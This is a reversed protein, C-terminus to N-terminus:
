HHHHSHGHHRHEEALHSHGVGVAQGARDEFGPFPARYSCTDCNMRVEGARCEAVRDLVLQVLEPGAGFHGADLVEIGTEATFRAFDDKMRDLLVGTAMYWAFAAVREAGLRRLQDLSDPVSPWTVGSFGPVVLQAGSMEALLRAAKTAEANADPDSTGRALVALPVGLAGVDALRKHALELLAADVGFPRAYRITAAPFRVRAELVVAPVDSKSHGAAHLMLPVVDIEAAGDELMETIVSSAPPESMELYGLHVDAEPRAAAVLDALARMEDQGAESRSGHGVLLISEPV